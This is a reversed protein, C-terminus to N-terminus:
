LLSYYHIITFVTFLLSYYHIATFLLSLLPSCYHYHHYHIITFLSVTISDLSICLFVFFHLSICLFAQSIWLFASFHEIHLICPWHLEYLLMVYSTRNQINFVGYFITLFLNCDLHLPSFGYTFGWMIIHHDYNIDKFLTAFHWTKCLYINSGFIEGWIEAM